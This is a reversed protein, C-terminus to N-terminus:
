FHDAENEFLSSGRGMKKGFENEVLSKSETAGVIIGFWEWDKFNGFELHKKSVPKWVQSHSKLVMVLLPM